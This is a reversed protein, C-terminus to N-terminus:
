TPRASAGVAVRELFGLVRREYRSPEVNWAEVHGARPFRLLTVLDPQANAFAASTEIPVTEDATGHLVLAPVSLEDAREVYDVRDWDLGYRVTTLTKALQPLPSPIPTGLSPLTRRRAETRIVEGLNLAPADLVAGVAKDALQSEYLFSAVLAGGMSYGVLAVQSAGHNLAYRVAGEVDRRESRGWDRLGNETKPAQPDNRYSIVLAPFGERAVPGLLRLAERRSANLGHVFVVWTSRSGPVLWAPTLGLESRYRVEGYDLGFATEPDSPFAAAEIDVQDGADPRSGTLHDYRRM